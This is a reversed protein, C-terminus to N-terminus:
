DTVRHGEHSRRGWGGDSGGQQGKNVRTGGRDVWTPDRPVKTAGGEARTADGKVDSGGM